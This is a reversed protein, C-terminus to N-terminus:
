QWLWLASSLLGRVSELGPPARQVGEPLETGETLALLRAGEYRDGTFARDLGDPGFDEGMVLVRDVAIGAPEAIRDLITGAAPEADGPTGQALTVQQGWQDFGFLGGEFTWVFLLVRSLGLVQRCVTDCFPEVGGRAVLVVRVERDLLREIRECVAIVGAEEGGFLSPLDLVVLRFRRDVHGKAQTESM